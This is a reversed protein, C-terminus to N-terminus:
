NGKRLHLHLVRDRLRHGHRLRGAHAADRARVQGLHPPGVHGRVGGGGVLDAAQVAAPGHDPVGAGDDRLVHVVM